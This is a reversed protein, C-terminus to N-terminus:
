APIAMHQEKLAVDFRHRMEEQLAPTWWAWFERRAQELAASEEDILTRLEASEDADEATELSQQLHLLASARDNIAGLKEQLTEAIPYLRARFSRPFAGALLEMVYRLEKGRIRLQHLAEASADHPPLSDFFQAVIPRLRMRAWGGFRWEATSSWAKARLAVRRLLKDVRRALRDNRTLQKSVAALQSQADARQERLDDLVEQKEEGIGDKEFDQIMVDLDRATGAARRIRRLKRALRTNLRRPLMDEYLKLAATARRTSVRLQHVYEPDEDAHNAALPLYYQVTDLRVQLTRRAADCTWDQPAFGIIWKGGKTGAM